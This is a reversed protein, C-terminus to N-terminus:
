GAPILVLIRAMANKLEELAERDWHIFTLNKERVRESVM